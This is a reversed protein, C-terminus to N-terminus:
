RRVRVEVRANDAIVRCEHEGGNLVGRWEGHTGSAGTLEEEPALFSTMGIGSTLAFVGRSGAPLDLHVQGSASRVLLPADLPEALSVSVNGGPTVDSGSQVDIAGAAGIVRVGGAINRVRLGACRPVRIVVDAAADGEDVALVRFIPHPEAAEVSTAAWSAAVRRGEPGDTMAVVQPEKLADDFEIFVSGAGADVDVAVPRSWDVGPPLPALALQGHPPLSACGSTVAVALSLVSFMRSM